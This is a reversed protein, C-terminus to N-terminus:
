LPQNSVRRNIIDRFINIALLVKEPSLDFLQDEQDDSPVTLTDDLQDERDDLSVTLTDYINKAYEYPSSTEEIKAHLDGGAELLIELLSQYDTIEGTHNGIWSILNKVYLHLPTYGKHNPININAGGQKILYSIVKSKFPVSCSEADSLWLHLPTNGNHDQARVDIGLDVLADLLEYEFHALGATLHWLNFGLSTKANMDIGCQALKRLKMINDQRRDAGETMDDYEALLNSLILHGLNIEEYIISKLSDLNHPIKQVINLPFNLWLLQGWNLSYDEFDVSRRDNSFPFLHIVQQIHVQSSFFQLLPILINRNIENERDRYWIKCFDLIETIAHELIEVEYNFAHSTKLIKILNQMLFEDELSLCHKLASFVSSPYKLHMELYIALDILNVHKGEIIADLFNKGNPTIDLCFSYQKQQLLQDFYSKILVPALKSPMTKLTDEGNQALFEIFIGKPFINHALLDLQANRWNWTETKLDYYCSLYCKKDEDYTWKNYIHTKDLSDISRLQSQLTFQNFRTFQYAKFPKSLNLLVQNTKSKLRDFLSIELRSHIIKKFSPLFEKCLDFDENEYFIYALTRAVTDLHEQPTFQFVKKLYYGMLQNIKDRTSLEISCESNSRVISYFTSKAPNDQEYQAYEELYALPTDIVPGYVKYFLRLAKVLSESTREHYIQKALMQYRAHKNCCQLAQIDIPDLYRGIILAIKYDIKELISESVSTFFSEEFKPKKQESFIRFYTM